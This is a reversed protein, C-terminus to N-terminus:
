EITELSQVRIFHIQEIEVCGIHASEKTQCLKMSPGIDYSSLVCGVCLGKFCHILGVTGAVEGAETEAVVAGPFDCLNALKAIAVAPFLGVDVLVAM